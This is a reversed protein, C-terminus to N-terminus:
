KRLKTPKAAKKGNFSMKRGRLKKKGNTHVFASNNIGLNPAVVSQSSKKKTTTPTNKNKLIGTPTKKTGDGKVKEPLKKGGQVAGVKLQDQLSQLHREM